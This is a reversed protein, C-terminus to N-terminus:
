RSLIGPKLLKWIMHEMFLEHASELKKEYPMYFFNLDVLTGVWLLGTTMLRIGPMTRSKATISWYPIEQIWWNEQIIWSNLFPLFPSIIGCFILDVLVLRNMKTQFRKNKFCRKEVHKTGIQPSFFREKQMAQKKKKKEKFFRLIMFSNCLVGFVSTRRDLCDQTEINGFFIWLCCQDVALVCLYDWSIYFLSHTNSNTM